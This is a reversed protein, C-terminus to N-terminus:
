RLLFADEICLTPLSAESQELPCTAVYPRLGSWADVGSTRQRVDILVLVTLATVGTVSPIELMRTVARFKHSRTAYMRGLLPLSELKLCSFHTFSGSHKSHTWAPLEKLLAIEIRIKKWRPLISPTTFDQPPRLSPYSTTAFAPMPCGLLFSYYSCGGGSRVWQM